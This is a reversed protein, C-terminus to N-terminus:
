PRHAAEPVEHIHLHFRTRQPCAGPAQYAAMLQVKYEQLVEPKSPEAAYTRPPSVALWRDAVEDDTWHCHARPEHFINLHFHNSDLRSQKRAILVRLWDFLSRKKWQGGM